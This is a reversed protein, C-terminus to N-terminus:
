SDLFTMIDRCAAPKAFFRQVLGSQVHQGLDPVDCGSTLLRRIMPHRFRVEQLLQIGNGGPMEYDSLVADFAGEELLKLAVDTAEATEVDFRRRLVRSLARLVLPDDDVVLVRLRRLAQLM